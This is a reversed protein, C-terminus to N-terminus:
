RMRLKDSIMVTTTRRVTAREGCELESVTRLVNTNKSHLIYLGGNFFSDVGYRLPLSIHACRFTNLLAAENKSDKLGISFESSIVEFEHRLISECSKTLIICDHFRCRM